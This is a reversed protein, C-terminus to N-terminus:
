NWKRGVEIGAELLKPKLLVYLKKGGLRPQIAREARVLEAILAANVEHRNRQKRGKYFNQRSMGTKKCLAATSIKLNM